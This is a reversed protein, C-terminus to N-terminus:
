WSILIPTSLTIKTNSAIERLSTFKPVSQIPSKFCLCRMLKVPFFIITIIYINGNSAMIPQWGSSWSSNIDLTKYFDKSISQFYRPFLSLQNQHACPYYFCTICDNNLHCLSPEIRSACCTQIKILSKFLSLGNEMVPKRAGVEASQQKAATSRLKIQSSENHIWLARLTFTITLLIICSWVSGQKLEWKIRSLQLTYLLFSLDPKRSSKLVNWYPLM